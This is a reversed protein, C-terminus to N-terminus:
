TTCLADILISINENDEVESRANLLKRLYHIRWGENHPVDVRKVQERILWGPSTWPDCCTEREIHLLNKGTTSRACRSVMSFVSRVEPSPSSRLKKAFEVYRGILQQKVTYFRAALANDVIYSHTSRPVSWTLKVCTSWSRYVQNARIGFLDWLMAGYWHSAYVSIAQLIQTPFAFGFTERIRVSDDIFRARKINADYEMSCLQHLKHGLHNAHEVWPLANNGLQLPAPYDANLQGCLYICKTKSLAPVPNTSFQLNHQDAYKECVNLMLQMASRSPAMLILDDAYGAAGVWMGGMYCGVGLNRLEKLLDDLYVSFLCPSLVSGQRTGNAVGFTNSKRGAWSVCARQEEYIYVLARIVIPPVNRDILKSFLTSFVCKDFAKSCDLLTAIVPTGQRLYYSAVEMVLWSCQTTSTAKKFGFQLTDSTLLDGWISLIVYDFLKLIQSSGAIARYSDSSHPDKLGGKYLPLFACSLLELTVNGHVLFSRFILALHDFLIDPGHLLIDSTFGGSVDSKGPKMLSCAKKVAAGSIKNVEAISDLGIKSNLYLKLQAMAEFSEASNFLDEYVQKFLEGIEQAGNASDIHDPVASRQKKAGNIKKMALLLNSDGNLADELLNKARISNALQKAKRVAYHYKNRVFKMTEFLQGFNPKGNQQWLFHWFLSEQRLPELDSKWGPIAKGVECNKNPDWRAVRGGSMPITLHSTEIMSILIDLLFSDRVQLHHAENCQPDSCQLELPPELDALKLGLDYTYTNLEAKDAKYWAPRKPLMHVTAKRHEILADISLKIMIPSHRSPNDGLHIAGADLILPMLGPSVLFRDLTSFSKMDTHVHTFEVPFIDWVDKLGIKQVWRDMYSAFGSTRSKDWNFDAGFIVEDFLSSEMIKEIDSLTTQLETEDFNM